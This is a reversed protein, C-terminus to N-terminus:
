IRDVVHILSPFPLGCWHRSFEVSMPARRAVAMPDCLILCLQAVLVVLLMFSCPFSNEGLAELFCLGTPVRVKASIRLLFGGLSAV